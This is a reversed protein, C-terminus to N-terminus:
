IHNRLESLHSWDRWTRQRLVKCHDGYWKADGLWTYYTAVPPCVTLPFGAAAAIHAVSTCSSITYDVLSLCALLDDLTELHEEVRFVNPYNEIGDFDEKQVSIFTIDTRNFDLVDDLVGLPLTRHLDQDYKKAGQWKFAVKKGEPLIKKWKEVYEPDPTLYNGNWLQDKDLDLAIPLYMAKIALADQPLENISEAVKFGNKAFLSRTNKRSTVFVPNMGLSEINKAFRVNIVEDGIGGEAIIAITANPITEGYWQKLPLDYKPWIGIRHGVDIFGLLGNKFDGDDLLYSGQNFECRDRVNEPTNPDYLLEELIARSKKFDSALYHSFLIEMKAEYDNPNIHLNDQSCEISKQPENLHNYLKALNSRIAYKQQPSTALSLTKLTCSLSNHYDKSELFLRGLHDFQELTSSYPVFSQLLTSATDLQDTSKLFQIVADLPDNMHTNQQM